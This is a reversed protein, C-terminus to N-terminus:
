IKRSLLWLARRRTNYYQNKGVPCGHTELYEWPRKQCVGMILWKYLRPDAEMMAAEIADIKGTLYRRRVALQYSPDSDSSSQVHERDYSVGKLVPLHKLEERLANYRKAYHSTAIYTETDMYYPSKKSISTKPM